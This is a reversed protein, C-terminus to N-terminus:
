RPVSQRQIVPEGHLSILPTRRFGMSFHQVDEVAGTVDGAAMFEVGSAFCLPDCIGQNTRRNRTNDNLFWFRDAIGLKGKDMIGVIDARNPCPFRALQGLRLSEGPIWFDPLHREGRVAPDHSCRDRSKFVPYCSRKGTAQMM